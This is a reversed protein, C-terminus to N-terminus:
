SRTSRPTTTSRTSTPGTRTSASRGSAHALRRLRDDQAERGQGEQARRRRDRAPGAAKATPRPGGARAAPVPGMSSEVFNIDMLEPHAAVDGFEGQDLRSGAHPPGLPAMGLRNRRHDQGDAQDRRDLRAPCYNSVLEQKRGAAIAEDATKKDWVVMLVNGNPMKAADHHPYQKANHFKFDWVLEGDWTSSRSGGPRARRRRRVGTGRRRARRHPVSPREALPLRRADLQAAIGM